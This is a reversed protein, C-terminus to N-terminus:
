YVVIKQFQRQFYIREKLFSLSSKKKFAFRLNLELQKQHQKKIQNQFSIKIQNEVDVYQNQINELFNKQWDMLQLIKGQDYQKTQWIKQEMQFQIKILLMEKERKLYIDEQGVKQEQSIRFFQDHYYALNNQQMDKYSERLQKNKLDQDLFKCNEEYVKDYKQKIEDIQEQIEEYTLQKQNKNSPSYDEELQIIANEQRMFGKFQNKKKLFGKEQKKQKHNFILEEEKEDQFKFQQQKKFGKYQQEQSAMSLDINKLKQNKEEQTILKEKLKNIMQQRNQDEEEDDLNYEDENVEESNKKEQETDNKNDKRNEKEEQQQQQRLQEEIELQQRYKEQFRKEEEEQKKKKEEEQEQQQKLTEEEEQKQKRKNDDEKKLREQEEKQKREEEEQKKKLRKKEEEEDKKLREEEELQIQKEKEQKNRVEDLIKQIEEQQKKFKFEEEEQQQQKLLQELKQQDQEQKIQIELEEQKRQQEQEQLLLEEQLQKEEKNRKEEEEKLKQEEERKLKEEVQKLREQEEKKREEEKKLIEEQEEQEKILREEEEKKLKEEEEKKKQKEYDNQKVLKEVKKQEEEKKMKEEDLKVQEDKDKEICCQNNGGGVQVKLLFYKKLLVQEKYSAKQRMKQSMQQREYEKYIAMEDEQNDVNGIGVGDLFDEFKGLDRCGKERLLDLNEMFSIWKGNRYGLFETNTSQERCKIFFRDLMEGMRVVNGLFGKNIKREKNFVFQLSQTNEIMFDVLRSKEQIERLYEKLYKNKDLNELIGRLFELVKLQMINNWQFKFFVEWIKGFGGNEKLVSSVFPFQIFVIAQYIEIIKLREVGCYKEEEKLELIKQFEGFHNKLSQFFQMEEFQVLMIEYHESGEQYSKMFNASSDGYYVCVARIIDLCCKRVIKKGKLFMEFIQLIIKNSTILDILQQGDVIIFYKGIIECILSSFNLVQDDQMEQFNFIEKEIIEIKREQIRSVLLAGQKGQKANEVLFANRAIILISDNYIHKMINELVDEQLILYEIMSNQKTKLLNLILNMFYNSLVENINIKNEIFEFLKNMNPWNYKKKCVNEEECAATLRQSQFFSLMM